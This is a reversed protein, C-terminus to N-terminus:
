PTFRSPDYADISMSSEGNAILDATIKGMAPAMMIGQRGAGTAIYLGEVSPVRGLILRGDPAVPRLCATQMVLEADVLAPLMRLTSDVIRDRGDVTTSEDFGAEEETTGAWVLGDSPKTMAYNSGHGVSVRYPAGPARLRIIQGKLPRIPIDIGAWASADASWPGMALVVCDTAIREGETMVGSIRGDDRVLGTVRGTRLTAGLREAAQALALTLRYPEVDATGEIHVAGVADPSIRPEVLRADDANTWRVSYGPQQQQWDLRGALEAAEEESFALKLAATDRYQIDVGTEEPLSRSLTRYLRMSEAMVPYNPHPGGAIGGGLGGYAFGSAHSALGDRELVTSKIGAHALYYAAAVGAIGGGVIVVDASRNM